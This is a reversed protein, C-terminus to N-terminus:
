FHAAIGILVKFSSVDIDEGHFDYTAKTYRLEPNISVNDTLFYDLGAQAGYSFTSEDDDVEGEIKVDFNSYALNLGVYPIFESGTDFHANARVGLSWTGIELASDFDIKGYSIEPGVEFMENLFFGVGVGMIHQDFDSDTGHEPDLNMMDFNVYANTKYQRSTPAQAMAPLCFVSVLAASLVLVGLGKLIKKM